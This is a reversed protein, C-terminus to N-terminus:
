AVSLENQQVDCEEAENGNRAYRESGRVLCDCRSGRLYSDLDFM